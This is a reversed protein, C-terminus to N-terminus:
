QSPWNTMMLSLKSLTGPNSTAKFAYLPDENGTKGDPFLAELCFIEGEILSGNNKFGVMTAMVM